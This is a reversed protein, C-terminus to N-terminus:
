ILMFRCKRVKEWFYWTGWIHNSKKKRFEGTGSQVLHGLDPVAGAEPVGDLFGGNKVSFSRFFTECLDTSM